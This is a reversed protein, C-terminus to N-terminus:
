GQPNWLMCSHMPHMSDDERVRAGVRLKQANMGKPANYEYYKKDFHISRKV